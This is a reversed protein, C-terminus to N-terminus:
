GASAPDSTLGALATRVREAEAERRQNRYLALARTWTAAAQEVDGLAQETRALSDLTAAEDYASGTDRYRTIAQRYFVSAADHDGSLRAIYGLSDLTHAEGYHNEHERHLALAAECHARAQEYHGLRAEYWGATNRTEAEGVRDGLSRFLHLASLAHELARQDDGQHARILTFAHHANAQELLDGQEEALNLSRRLHQTADVYLGILVYGRALLRHALTQAAPDASREAAALGARWVTVNEDLHGQRWRFSQLTWALQWVLAHWGRDVALQHTALLNAHEAEFWAWAAAPGDLPRPSGPPLQIPQRQPSVLRDAAFSTHLYFETLRRLGAEARDATLDHDARETAYLRVLDHMRFRGATHEELLSIRELRRLVQAAQDLPLGTLAAAAHLSIDPGPALGLLAFVVAQASELAAHTWSVAARVSAAPDDADLAGLRTAADRLEAALSALPLDPRLSGRAAVVALALPLGACRTLLDATAEPEAALRDEGLRATLLARADAEALVDLALPRTNHATLLGALRDRSTVLVTCAASGPLLPVVQHADRANDLVILMRRGAVLSRYLGAQADLDAPIAAPPVGLAELLGRIAEASTVPRGDPAFGRLDLFLQGDPFDALHRHAWHLALWTKGVGGGGSIASVVATAGNAGALAADLGALEERRGVFRGPPAPLQRPAPGAAEASVSAALLEDREAPECDLAEALRRVTRVRPNGREGTEFGRLTRIGVGSREALQEQTLGARLRAQRLLGGFQGTM